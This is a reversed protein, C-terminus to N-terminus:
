AKREQFGPCNDGAAHVHRNHQVFPHFTAALPFQFVGASQSPLTGSLARESARFKIDM